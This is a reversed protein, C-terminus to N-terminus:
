HKQAYAAELAALRQELDELEVAKIAFELVTRAAAVRAHAPTTDRAMINLLVNVAAGSAQQLRAIAHQTAERRALRYADAFDARKLWARLTREPVEAVLAARSVSPETM